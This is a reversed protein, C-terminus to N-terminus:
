DQMSRMTDLNSVIHKLALLEQQNLHHHDTATGLQLIDMRSGGAVPSDEDPFRMTSYPNDGDPGQIFITETATNPRAIECDLESWSYLADGIDLQFHSPVFDFRVSKGVALAAVADPVVRQLEDRSFEHWYRIPNTRVQLADYEALVDDLPEEFYTGHVLLWTRAVAFMEGLEHQSTNHTTM